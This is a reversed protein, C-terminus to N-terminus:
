PGSFPWTNTVRNEATKSFKKGKKINQAQFLLFGEKVDAGHLTDCNRPAAPM